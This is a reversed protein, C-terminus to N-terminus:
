ELTVEKELDINLDKINEVHEALINLMNIFNNREASLHRSKESTIGYYQGNFEFNECTNRTVDIISDIIYLEEFTQQNFAVIKSNHIKAM